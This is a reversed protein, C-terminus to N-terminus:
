AARGLPAPTGTEEPPYLDPRLRTRPIGTIAEVALVHREPVRRWSKLSPTKIGLSSAIASDGGAITIAEGVVPDRVPLTCASSRMRRPSVPEADGGLAAARLRRYVGLTPETKAAKWRSFTSPAVRARRCVEAMSIGAAVAAAEIEQPTLSDAMGWVIQM